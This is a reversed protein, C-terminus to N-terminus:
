EFDYEQETGNEGYATNTNTTTTKTNTKTTRNNHKTNTTTVTKTKVTNQNGILKAQEWAGIATNHTKWDTKFSKMGDFNNVFCPQM